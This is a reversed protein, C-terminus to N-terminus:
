GTYPSVTLVELSFVGGPAEYSVSDGVAAGLLASGLPSSPSALIYGDVRNEQTAVFVKMEVGDERRIDVVSGVAVTDGGEANKVIAGDLISKLQRIRAEQLGQENKAADYDANERIDGHSRAEAIRETSIRRGETQLEELEEVLKRHASPTLWIPEDPM